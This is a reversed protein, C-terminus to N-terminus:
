IMEKNIMCELARAEPMDPYFMSIKNLSDLAAEKDGLRTCLDAHEVLIKFDVSRM